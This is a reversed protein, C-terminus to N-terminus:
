VCVSRGTRERALVLALTVRVAERAKLGENSSRSTAQDAPQKIPQNSPDAPQKIQGAIKSVAERTTHGRKSSPQRRPEIHTCIRDTTQGRIARPAGQAPETVPPSAHPYGHESFSPNVCRHNQRAGHKQPALFTSVARQTLKHARTRFANEKSRKKTAKSLSVVRRWACHSFTIFLNPLRLLGSVTFAAVRCRSRGSVGSGPLGAVVGVALGM